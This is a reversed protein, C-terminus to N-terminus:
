VLSEGAKAEWISLNLTFVVCGTKYKIVTMAIVMVSTVVEMVVETEMPWVRLLAKVDRVYLMWVLFM